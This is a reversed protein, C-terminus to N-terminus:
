WSCPSARKRRSRAIGTERPVIVSRLPSASAIEVGTSDIQACGPSTSAARSRM